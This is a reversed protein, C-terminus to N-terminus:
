LTSTSPRWLSARKTLLLWTLYPTDYILRLFRGLVEHQKLRHGEQDIVGAPMKDLWDIMSPFVRWPEPTPPLTEPKFMDRMTGGNRNDHM